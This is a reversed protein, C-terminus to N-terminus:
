SGLDMNTIRWKCTAPDFWNHCKLEKNERLAVLLTKRLYDSTLNVDKHAAVHRSLEAQGWPVNPKSKLIEFIVKEYLKAHILDSAKDYQNRGNGQKIERPPRPEAPKATDQSVALSDLTEALKLRKPHEWEPADKQKTMTVSVAMEKDERDLVIITDPAGIFEMSGKGRSQNGHGSHHLCLVACGLEAQIQEVRQTLKSAHEQANENLGQMARAVTDIVVLKPKTVMDLCLAMFASWDDDSGVNPVPDILVFGPVELEGNHAHEWARVRALMSARGEGAAYIVPGSELVNWTPNVGAGSCISLAIDLAVFSKFTGPAGAMMVFGGAPIFDEVLMKAPKIDNMGGRDVARLRGNFKETGSSLANARPKFLAQSKAVRYAQTMNGPDSTNHAYANRVKLELYEPEGDWPPQCRPSWHEMMLDFAMERSIGYGKCMAATKYAMLEGGQGEIAIKAKTKLWEVALPIHESMDPEILWTDRGTSKERHSNCVRVMEDTRYAPKALPDGIWEYGGDATRGPPLLVYSHFSRIDVAPALKSSSPSVIEGPALAYYDHIGGRPSRASLLTKPLALTDVTAQDYDPKYNDREVVMMGASGVDLAPNARPFRTWWDTIIAQDTTADIIGNETYPTKDSRCPIIAWGRRAYALAAELLDNSM